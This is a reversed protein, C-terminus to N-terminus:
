KFYKGNLIDNAVAKVEDEDFEPKKGTAIYELAQKEIEANKEVVIEAAKKALQGHEYYKPDFDFIDKQTEKLTEQTEEVEEIPDIPEETNHVTRLTQNGM